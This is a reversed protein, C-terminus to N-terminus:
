ADDFDIGHRLLIKRAEAVSSMALIDDTDLMVNFNTEIASVLAMHGISDWEPISQYALEDGAAEAQIGLGTAFSQRLKENL